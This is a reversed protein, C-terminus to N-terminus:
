PVIKTVSSNTFNSCWVSSGDFFLYNPENGTPLTRVIRGDLGLQLITNNTYDTVWIYIGDFVLDGPEGVLRKRKLRVGDTNLENLTYDAAGGVWINTGDFVIGLPYRGAVFTGAITGDSARVKLIEDNLFAAVWINEGDYALHYSGSIGLPYKALIAADTDRMKVLYQDISSVVWINEGDFLIGSPNNQGAEYTGEVSGDLRLRTVTHSLYQWDTVWIYTGDFVANQTFSPVPFQGLIVGDTARVKTVSPPKGNSNQHAVWLNEGDFTMGSPYAGVRFREVHQGLAPMVAFGALCLVLMTRAIRPSMMERQYNESKEGPDTANM